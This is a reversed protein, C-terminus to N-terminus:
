MNKHRSTAKTVEKDRSRLQNYPPLSAPGTKILISLQTSSVISRLSTYYSILSISFM